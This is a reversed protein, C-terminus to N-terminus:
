AQCVENRSHSPGMKTQAGRDTVGAYNSVIAGICCDPPHLLFDPLRSSLLTLRKEVMADEDHDHDDDVVDNDHDAEPVADGSNMGM